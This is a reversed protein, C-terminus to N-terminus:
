RERAIWLGLLVLGGGVLQFAQPAEDLLILSLASGYLPMLYLYPAARAPGVTTVARNWLWFALASALVGVYAVAALTDPTRHWAAGAQPAGLVFPLMMGLAMLVSASLLPGQTVGPPTRRLLLAQVAACVIAPLMWLDGPAPALTRLIDLRGRAVLAAAGGLSVILGLWQLPQPRRWGLLWSGMVVLLPVLNLLLLANVASTTRLAAYICIHPLAVGTLGLMAVLVLHRRLLPWQARLGRATLPLLVALAVTWRWFNLELPDIAERLGRGVVFNGAWLLTAVALGFRVNALTATPNASPPGPVNSSSHM